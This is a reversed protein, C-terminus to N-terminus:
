SGHSWTATSGYGTVEFDHVAFPVDGNIERAIQEERIRDPTFGSDLLDRLRQIEASAHRRDRPWAFTQGARDALVKLYRVQKQTPRPGDGTDTSM